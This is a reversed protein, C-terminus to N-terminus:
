GSAGVSCIKGVVNGSMVKASTSGTGGVRLVPAPGISSSVTTNSVNVAVVPVKLALLVLPPPLRVKPMM